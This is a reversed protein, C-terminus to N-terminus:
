DYGIEKMVSNQTSVMFNYEEETMHDFGLLHLIGHSILYYIEKELSHNNSEAQKKATDVSVIIEGLNIEDTIVSKEDDCFLAFSIVDTASDKNRYEKNIKHIFEDDCFVFDISLQKIEINNLCRKEYVEPTNLVTKIINEITTKSYEFNTYNEFSLNLRRILNMIMTKKM